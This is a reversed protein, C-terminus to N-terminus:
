QPPQQQKNPEDPAWLKVSSGINLLFRLAMLGFGVPIISECLWAPIGSFAMMGDEYEMLVFQLAYYSVIACIVASFLNAIVASIAKGKNPLLRSVVDISIHNSQKTAAIAGLLGLWMVMVRLLPASWEIGSDFFNRLVIQSLALLIMAGLTFVLLGDELLHILRNIKTHM